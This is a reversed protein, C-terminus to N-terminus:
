PLFEGYLRDLLHMGMEIRDDYEWPRVRYVFVQRTPQFLRRTREVYYRRFDAMSSFGERALSEPSIAGLPEQWVAELVMLARDYENVLDVGARKGRRRIRYLVAPSPTEACFPTSQTGIEGRFETKYGRSVAAWDDSPVRIFLTRTM